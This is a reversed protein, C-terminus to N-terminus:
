LPNLLFLGRWKEPVATYQFLLLLSLDSLLSDTFPFPFPHLSSSNEHQSTLRSILLSILCVPTWFLRLIRRWILFRSVIFSACALKSLAPLRFSTLRHCWGEINSRDRQSKKRLVCVRRGRADAACFSSANRSSRKDRGLLNAGKAFAGLLNSLQIFFKAIFRLLTCVDGESSGRRLTFASSGSVAYAASFALSAPIM